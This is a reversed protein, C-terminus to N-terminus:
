ETKEFFRIAGAPLSIRTVIEGSERNKWPSSLLIEETGEGLNSVCLYCIENVYVTAHVNKPLNELFLPSERFDMYCLSNEQVM